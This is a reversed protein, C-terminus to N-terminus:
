RLRRLVRRIEQEAAEHRDYVASGGGSALPGRLRFEGGGLDMPGPQTQRAVQQQIALSVIGEVRARASSGQAGNGGASRTTGPLRVPPREAPVQGASTLKPPPEAATPTAFGALLTVVVVLPLAIRSLKKM